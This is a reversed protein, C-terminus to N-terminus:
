SKCASVQQPCVCVDYQTQFLWLLWLLWWLWWLWWVPEVLNRKRKTFGTETSLGTTSMGTCPSCAPAARTRRSRLNRENQRWSCIAICITKAETCCWGCPTRRFWLVAVLVPPSAWSTSCPWTGPAGRVWLNSAPLLTDLPVGCLVDDVDQRAHLHEIHRRRLHPFLQHVDEPENVRLCGDLM